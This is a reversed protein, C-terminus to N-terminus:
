LRFQINSHGYDIATKKNDVNNCEPCKLKDRGIKQMREGCKSCFSIIVGLQSDAMTCQVPITKADIIKVRVVDGINVADDATELYAKSAQSVHLLCTYSPFVEENDIYYLSITAMQKTVNVVIGLCVSGVKPQVA